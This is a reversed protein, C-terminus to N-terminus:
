YREIGNILINVRRNAARGVKTNNSDIPLAEGKGEIDMNMLDLGLRSLYLAVSEARHESLLQNDTESGISDTHGEVLIDMKRLGSRKLEDALADIAQKGAISLIASGTAFYSSGSLVREITKRPASLNSKNEVQYRITAKPMPINIANTDKKNKKWNLWSFMDEDAKLTLNVFFGDKNQKDPDLDKDKFGTMNYAVGIQLNRDVNVNVGLGTSYQQQKFQESGIVGARAFIDVRNNLGYSAKADMLLVDSHYTQGDQKSKQWKGGARGSLSVAENIKYNQQTSLVHTTSDRGQTASNADNRAEKWQYLYLSNHQADDRQRQALGLTLTHSGNFEKNDPKTVRLEEGIFGSWVDDLRKVYTGEVAYYDARKSQRTEVRLSKNNDKSRSDIIKVSASLSDNLIAGKTVKVVELTPAVSLGKEIQIVGRLGTASEASSNNANSFFAQTRYESYAELQPTLKNKAGIILTNTRNNAVYDLSGSLEKGSQYRAYLSADRTVAVDASITAHHRQSNSIDQEYSAGLRASQGLVRMSRKAGVKLTNFKDSKNDQQNEIHRVGGELLWKGTRKELLVGVSQHQKNTNLHKSQRAKAVLDMSKNIEQQHTVIAEQRGASIGGAPNNFRNDARAIQVETTAENSWKKHAKIQYASGLEKSHNDRMRAVGVSVHSGETHQYQLTAGGLQSGSEKNQDVNLTAGLTLADSMKHEINVGAVLTQQTGKAHQNYSVRISIPNLNNDFSPIVRHFSLYGTVFDLTYDTLPTLVERHSVIGKNNSDRIILEVIESNVILQKNKLQYNLATGNGRFEEVVHKDQEQAIHVQVKTNAFELNTKLGTLSRRVQALDDNTFTETEYDGYQSNQQEKELRIFLKNRSHTKRGYGSADGKLAYFRTNLEKKFAAHEPDYQKDSDFSLTLHMDELVKGQMFLKARGSRTGETGATLNLYGTVFLPRLHAIQAIETKGKLADAKVSIKIKGTQRSSRLHIEGKGNSIKIQHGPIMDQLDSEVWTGDNAAVTLFYDGMAPYGQQDLVTIELPLISKGGDAVLFENLPKVRIKVGVSPKVFVKKLLSLMKGRGDVGKIELINKGANLKIGYWALVQGRAKRNVIQEGLQDEIVAKGNVMLVPKIVDSRVVAMFRGDSSINRKPWLWVGKKAQQNTITQVVQQSILMKEQHSLPKESVLLRNLNKKVSLGKLYDTDSLSTNHTRIASLIKNQTNPDSNICDLVFDARSFYSNKLDLLYSRPDNLQRNDTNKLRLGEPLTLPDVKVVHLEAKVDEFTYDGAADTVTYQGDELYLHVGGIPLLGNYRTRQYGCRRDFHVKGFITGQNALVGKNDISVEASAIKSKLRQQVDNNAVLYAQNLIANTAVTANVRASYNLRFIKNKEFYGLEFILRSVTRRMMDDRKEGDLQISDELLTLGQPFLDHVQLKYLATDTQNKIDITYHIVDGMMASTKSAQKTIALNQEFRQEEPKNDVSNEARNQTQRTVELSDINIAFKTGLAAKNLSTATLKLTILMGESVSQPVTGVILLHTIQEPAITNLQTVKGENDDLKGNANTDHYLALAQLDGDDDTTDLLSLQYSDTTNGFNTLRHSLQLQQGATVTTQINSELRINAVPLLVLSVTNSYLHVKKGTRPNIYSAHVTNIVTMETATFGNAPAFPSVSLGVLLTIIFVSLFDRVGGRHM